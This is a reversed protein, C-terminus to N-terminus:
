YPHYNGLVCHVGEHGHTLTGQDEIKVPRISHIQCWLEDVLEVSNGDVNVWEPWVAFGFIRPIDKHKSIDYFERYAAMVEEVSDYYYTTTVIPLGTRDMTPKIETGGFDDCGCLLVILLLILYKM